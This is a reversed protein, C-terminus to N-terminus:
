SPTKILEKLAKLCHSKQSKVVSKNEYGLSLTIEDITLGRYYFLTLMEQCRKGLKKFSEHLRKSQPSPEAEKFIYSLAETETDEPLDEFTTTKQKQKLLDYIKYKGISFLYTKVSSKIDDLKGRIAHERLAIFSEQYIDIVDDHTLDYKGAFQIFSTRYSTYMKELSHNGGKKLLRIEEKM